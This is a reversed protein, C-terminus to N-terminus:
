EKHRGHNISGSSRVNEPNSSPLKFGITVTGFSSVEHCRHIILYHLIYFNGLHFLFVTRSVKFWQLTLMLIASVAKSTIERHRMVDMEELTPPPPPPLPMDLLILIHQVHSINNGQSM